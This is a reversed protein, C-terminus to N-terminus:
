YDQIQVPPLVAATSAYIDATSPSVKETRGDLCIVGKLRRIQTALNQLNVSSSARERFPFSSMRKQPSFPADATDM